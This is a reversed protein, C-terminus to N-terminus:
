FFCKATNYTVDTQQLWSVDLPKANNKKQQTQKIPEM